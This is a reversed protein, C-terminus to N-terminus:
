AKLKGYVEKTKKVCIKMLKILAFYVLMTAVTLGAMIAVSEKYSRGSFYLNILRKPTMCHTLYIALSLPALVSFVKHRFLDAIFSKGNFTIAIVIPMLLMIPFMILHSSKKWIWFYAIITYIAVEAVTYLAKGFPKEVKKNGIYVYINYAVVGFCLGCFARIAGNMFVGSYQYWPIYPNDQHIMYSYSILAGLPAFIKCFFDPSFSLIFYMFIMVFFMASIYWTVSNMYYIQSENRINQWVGSMPLFLIEPISRILERFWSPDNSSNYRVINYAVFALLFASYYEYAIGKVRSTIYKVTKSVPNTSDDSFDKKYFHVVMLMGSIIFFVHVCWFGLGRPISVKTNEGIYSDTHSWFVLLILILKLFNLAYSRSSSRAIVKTM